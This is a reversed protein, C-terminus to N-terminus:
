ILDLNPIDAAVKNKKNEITSSPYGLVVMGFLLNKIIEPIYTFHWFNDFQDQPIYNVLINFFFGFGLYVMMGVVVWFSPFEYINNTVNERFFQRLYLFIFLFIFITEVAIVVSDLKQTKRTILFQAIQFIFFTISAIFIFRRVKHNRVFLWLFYAFFSYELFTYLYQYQRQLSVPVLNYYHLLTFFIVGYVGIGIFTPSKKFKSLVYTLLLFLYSYELLYIFFLKEITQIKVM